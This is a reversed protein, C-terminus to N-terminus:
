AGLETLVAPVQPPIERALYGLTGVEAALREGIRAHVYAGWV